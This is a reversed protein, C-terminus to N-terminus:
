PTWGRGLWWQCLAAVVVLAAYTAMKGDSGFLALGAALVVMNAVFIIAVQAWLGPAAARKSRSFRAFFRALLVLLLAVAAAPAAFNLLHDALLYATM